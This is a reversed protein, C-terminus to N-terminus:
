LQSKKVTYKTRKLNNQSMNKTKTKLIPTENINKEINKINENLNNIIQEYWYFWKELHEVRIISKEANKNIKNTILKKVDTLEAENHGQQEGGQIKQQYKQIFIKEFTKKFHIQKKSSVSNNYNNIQEYQKNKFIRRENYFYLFLTCDTETIERKNKYNAKDFIELIFKKVIEIKLPNNNDNIKIAQKCEDLKELFLKHEKETLEIVNSFDYWLCKGLFSYFYPEKEDILFETDFNLSTNKLAFKYGHLLLHIIEFIVMSEYFKYKASNTPLKLESIPKEEYMEMSVIGIKYKESFHVHKVFQNFLNKTNEDNIHINFTGILNDM